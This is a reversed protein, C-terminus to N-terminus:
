RPTGELVLRFPHHRRVLPEALGARRGLERLEGVTFSRLVSLPGDHRTLRNRRWWTAALARAGLYNLPRRELDSVLVLRRAVRAMEALLRVALPDPFHHLTLVTVAADVADDAFPLRLADGRVTRVRGAHRRALLSAVQAHADLGILRWERAHPGSPLAALTDGNGAGVDLVTLPGMRAALAGLRRRLPGTGGLWRNVAAVHALSAELEAADHHPQDLLEADHRRTRM